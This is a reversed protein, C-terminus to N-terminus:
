PRYNLNTIVETTESYPSQICICPQCCLGRIMMGKIPLTTTMMMMMKKKKKMMMMMKIKMMMMMKMKKKMMMMMMMM